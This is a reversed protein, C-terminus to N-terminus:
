IMIELNFNSDPVCKIIMWYPGIFDAYYFKASNENKLYIWIIKCIFYM